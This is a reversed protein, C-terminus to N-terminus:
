DVAFEFMSVSAPPLTLASPAVSSLDGIDRPRVADPSGIDNHDRVSASTLVRHALCRGVSMGACELDLVAEDTLSLDAATLTLRGDKVSASLSIQPIVATRGTESDSYEVSGADFVPRIAAGGMHGKYMDYVHYTPTCICDAGKALFLCHLNNVLQAANAMFVRDAANNFINLTLASILADRMTSQQEFLNAGKSPGSGGEHWCGWEDVCLKIRDDMGRGRIISWHRDVIEKMRLAKNILTYYEDDTFDVAGGCTGCYYHLSLGSFHHGAGKLGDFLGETWGYDAGNPGCAILCADPDANEMLVAYRRLDSAYTLPSMNGGGGWNENGVGWFKVGFPEAAGNAEREQALTTSGAPSNCYDMWARIDMPTLSTMNTAFYPQAGAARCFAMFEHTGFTNPETRGDENQWWNRRLPRKGVPGIGDRWDYTEAFCGGPWRIVPVDIARLKDVIFSRVGCADTKAGSDRDPILGGYIVGGLHETFQGYIEPSVRGIEDPRTLYLKTM